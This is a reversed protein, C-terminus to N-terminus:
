YYTAPPATNGSRNYDDKTSPFAGVTPGTPSLVEDESSMDGVYDDNPDPAGQMSSLTSRDLCPPQYDAITHIERGSPIKALLTNISPVAKTNM